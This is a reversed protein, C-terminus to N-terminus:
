KEFSFVQTNAAHPNKTSKWGNATKQPQENGNEHGTRKSLYPLQANPGHQDQEEGEHEQEQDNPITVTRKNNNLM